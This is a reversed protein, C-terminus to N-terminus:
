PMLYLAFRLADKAALAIARGLTVNEARARSVAGSFFLLVGYVFIGAGVFALAPSGLIEATSAAVGGGMAVWFGVPTFRPSWGPRRTWRVPRGTVRPLIVASVLILVPITVALFARLTVARVDAIKAWRDLCRRRVSDWGTIRLAPERAIRGIVRHRDGRTGRRHHHTGPRRRARDGEVM